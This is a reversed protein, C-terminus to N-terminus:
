LIDAIDLIDSDNKKPNWEAVNLLEKIRTHQEIVTNILNKNWELNKRYINVARALKMGHLEHMVAYSKHHMANQANEQTVDLAFRQSYATTRKLSGGHKSFHDITYEVEEGNKDTITGGYVYEGDHNSGCLLLKLRMDQRSIRTSIENLPLPPTEKIMRGMERTTPLSQIYQRCNDSVRKVAKTATKHHSSVMYTVYADMEVNKKGRENLMEYSSFGNYFANAALYATHIVFGSFPLKEGEERYYEVTSVDLGNLTSNQRAFCNAYEMMCEMGNRKCEDYDEYQLKVNTLRKTTIMAAYNLFPFLPSQEKGSKEYLMKLETFPYDFAGIRGEALHKNIEEVYNKMNNKKM